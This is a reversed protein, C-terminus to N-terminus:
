DKIISDFRCSSICNGCERCYKGIIEALQIQRDIAKYDPCANKTICDGCSNCLKINVRPEHYNDPVIKEIASFKCVEYCKGCHNCKGWDIAVRAPNIAERPCVGVCDGCRDCIDTNIKAIDGNVDIASKPCSGACQLHCSQPRCKDKVTYFEREWTICDGETKCKEMCKGCGRCLDNLNKYTPVSIEFAKKPCIEICKGCDVCDEVKIFYQTLNPLKIADYFCYDLCEGCGICTKNDINIKTLTNTINQTCSNILPITTSILGGAVILCGNRLFERREKDM